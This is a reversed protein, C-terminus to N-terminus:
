PQKRFVTGHDVVKFGLADYLALAGTNEAMTQAEVMAAGRRQVHRMAETLLHTAVKARRLDPDVYLDLMGVTPIGWSSALPEIDWFFVSAIEQKDTRRVLAYRMRDHTCTVSAEWWNRATPMFVQQFDTDRRVRRAERTTSSRYRILERQLVVARSAEVYGNRQFHEAQHPDSDLVGPLESGGYLGLYFGNLPNMGGGYHVTAGRLRQYEESAGLLADALGNDSEGARLMLMATTGMATSVTRGEDCPGFMAHAFGVIRGDRTAVLFGKPDFYQKSFINVELVPANVPLALGRQFPQSNWVEAIQPPDANHFPRIEFM